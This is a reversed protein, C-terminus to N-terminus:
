TLVNPPFVVTLFWSLTFYYLPFYGLTSSRNEEEYFFFKCNILFQSVLELCCYLLSTHFFSLQVSPSFLLHNVILAAGPTGDICEKM